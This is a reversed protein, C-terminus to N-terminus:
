GLAPEDVRPIPTLAIVKQELLDRLLAKADEHPMGCVDLLEDFTLVGDVHSLLFAAQPGLPLSALAEPVVVLRPVRELNGLQDNTGSIPSPTDPSVPLAVRCVGSGPATAGLALRKEANDVAGTAVELRRVSARTSKNEARARELVGGIRAVSAESGPPAFPLLAAALEGIDSYRHEREKALARRMVEDLGNPVDARRETLPKPDDMLIAVHLDALNEAQFPLEGAISQYLTVALSWIDSRGDVERPTRLQEPSMWNPSGVIARTQTLSSGQQELETGADIKSIGFDIVKVWFTGDPQLALFLNSPKIDRHVMGNAHLEAIAESAQLIHQVALPIELPGDRHIITALDEGELFEMVIYPSGSDISGVDLIRVAHESAIKVAVRAERAFREVTEPHDMAAGLLFKLAVRQELQVHKAAYVVGMGGEGIVGEVLYKGDILEGIEVPHGM